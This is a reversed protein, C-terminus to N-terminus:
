FLQRKKQSPLLRYSALPALLALLALLADNAHFLNLLIPICDQKDCAEKIEQELSQISVQEMTRSIFPIRVQFESTELQLTKALLEQILIADFVYAEM